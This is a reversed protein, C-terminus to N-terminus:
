WSCSARRDTWNTYKAFFTRSADLQVSGARGIAGLVVREPTVARYVHQACLECAEADARAAAILAFCSRLLRVLERWAM